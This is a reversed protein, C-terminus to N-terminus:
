EDNIMEIRKGMRRSIKGLAEFAADKVKDGAYEGKDKLAAKLGEIAKESGIMGIADAASGRVYSEKDSVLVKLLLEVAKESEIM